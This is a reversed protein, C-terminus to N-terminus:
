PPNGRGHWLRARSVPAPTAPSSGHPRLKFRSVTCPAHSKKVGRRGRERNLLSFVVEPMGIEGFRKGM